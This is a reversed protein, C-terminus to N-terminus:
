KLIVEPPIIKTNDLITSLAGKIGPIQGNIKYTFYAGILGLLVALCLLVIVATRWKDGEKPAKIIREMFDDTKKPNYGSEVDFTPMRITATDEDFEVCDVNLFRHFCYGDPLEIREVIKKGERKNKFFLSKNEIWGAKAYDRNKSRVEVLVLRGFSLRVKIYPMLFGKMLGALILVPIAMAILYYMVINWEILAM